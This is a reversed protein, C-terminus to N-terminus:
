RLCATRHAVQAARVTQPLFAPERRGAAGLPFQSCSPCTPEYGAPFTCGPFGTSPNTKSLAYAHRSGSRIELCVGFKSASELPRGPRKLTRKGSTPDRPFVDTPAALSIYLGVVSM